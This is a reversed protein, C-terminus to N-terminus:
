GNRRSIGAIISDQGVRGSLAPSCKETGTSTVAMSKVLKTSIGFDCIKIAGDHGLLINSPKIDRHMVNHEQKLYVLGFLALAGFLWRFSPSSM